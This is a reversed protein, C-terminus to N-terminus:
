RETGLEVEGPLLDHFRGQAGNQTHRAAFRRGQAKALWKAKRRAGTRESLADRLHADTGYAADAVVVPPRM